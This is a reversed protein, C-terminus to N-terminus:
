RLDAKKAQLHLIAELVGGGIALSKDSVTYCNEVCCRPDVDGSKMGKHVPVGEPLLGRVVGGITANIPEGTVYAVVNGEQVTDGIDKVPQFLGDCPARLVREGAFGGILGPVNTNPLASGSYYVRGLTHGRMTEVVAHCDVGATFGPGVGIVTPADTISTGLNRKALIADVLADPGLAHRCTCDPDALVPIIRQHMLERAEEVSTAKKAPIGEVSTEGLRLAESFAVSRRIATPQPLDTLVVDIGCKWLRLAIGSALDGAGRIVALM